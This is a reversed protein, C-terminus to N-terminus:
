DNSKRIRLSIKKLKRPFAAFVLTKKYKYVGYHAGKVKLSIKNQGEGRKM